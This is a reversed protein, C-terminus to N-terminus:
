YKKWEPVFCHNLYGKRSMEAKFNSYPYSTRGEMFSVPIPGGNYSIRAIIEGDVNWLEFLFHGRVTPPVDERHGLTVLLASLGTDHSGFLVLKQQMKLSLFEDPMRLIEGRYKDNDHIGYHWFAM